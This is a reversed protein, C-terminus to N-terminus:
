WPRSSPYCAPQHPRPDAYSYRYVPPVPYRRATAARNEEARRGQEAASLPLCRQERAKRRATNKKRAARTAHAM